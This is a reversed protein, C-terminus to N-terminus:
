TLTVSDSESHARPSVHTEADIPLFLPLCQSEWLLLLQVVSSHHLSLINLIKRTQYFSVSYIVRASVTKRYVQNM